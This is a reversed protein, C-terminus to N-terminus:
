KNSMKRTEQPLGTIIHVAKVTDWINQTTKNENENMEIGIKIEKKKRKKILQLSIVKCYQLPKIERKKIEEIIQQNYMLMNNLRWINSNKITKKGNYIRAEKTLSLTVM